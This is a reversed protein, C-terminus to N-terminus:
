ELRPLLRPQTTNTPRVNDGLLPTSTGVTALPSLPSKPLKGLRSIMKGSDQEEVSPQNRAEIAVLTPSHAKFFKSHSGYNEDPDSGEFSADKFASDEDSSCDKV